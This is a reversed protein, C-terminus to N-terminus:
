KIKSVGLGPVGPIITIRGNDFVDGKYPDNKILVNTDLDLYDAMSGLHAAATVLISSETRCGFMIKLGLSKAIVCMKFAERIGGCKALKINIGDAFESAPLIDNRDVVSEDAIIPVRVHKKLIKLDKVKVPPLPQEIFEPKYKALISIKKVAENLTWGANADFCIKGKFNDMVAKAIDMDNKCGLKVKLYPYKKAELTKEIIKPITDIGITFSTLKSKIPELGYYKYVPMKLKKCILDHLAIDLATIAVRCSGLNKNLIDYIRDLEFPDENKILNFGKKVAQVVTANTEGYFSDASAEGLGTINGDSLKVIINEKSTTVNRSIRFPNIYDLRITEIKLKM